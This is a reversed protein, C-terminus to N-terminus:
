RQISGLRACRQLLYLCACVPGSVSMSISISLVCVYEDRKIRRMVYWEAANFDKLPAGTKCPFEAAWDPLPAFGHEGKLLNSFFEDAGMGISTVAGVGTVVVKKNPMTAMHLARSGARAAAQRQGLPAAFAPGGGVFADVVTSVTSLLFSARALM